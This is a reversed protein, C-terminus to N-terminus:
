VKEQSWGIQCFKSTQGDCFVRNYLKVLLATLKVLKTVKVLKTMKDCFSAICHTNILFARVGGRLWRHKLGHRCEDFGWISPLANILSFMFAVPMIQMIQVLKIQTDMYTHTYNLMYTFDVYESIGGSYRSAQAVSSSIHIMSYLWLCGAIAYM